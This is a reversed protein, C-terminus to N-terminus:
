KSNIKQDGTTWVHKDKANTPKNQAMVGALSHPLYLEELYNIEEQTLTLDVSKVADEIHYPKTAGVVPSTTKTLLLSIDRAKLDSFIIFSGIM